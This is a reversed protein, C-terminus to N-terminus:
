HKSHVKRQGFRDPYDVLLWGLTVGLLSCVLDLWDLTRNPSFGQILEEATTLLGFFTPFLALRGFILLNLYRSRLSRHGLYTAIAYLSVHGVKDYYPIQAFWTPLNGTYALFLVFLFISGYALALLPWVSSQSSRTM